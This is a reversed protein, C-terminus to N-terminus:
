CEDENWDVKMRIEFFNLRNELHREVRDKGSDAGLKHSIM